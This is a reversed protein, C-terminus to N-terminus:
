LTEDGRPADDELPPEREPTMGALLEDLTFRRKSRTVVLRGDDVPAIEVRSGEALGVQELIAPSMMLAFNDGVKRIYSVLPQGSATPEAAYTQRPPEHLGPRQSRVSASRKKAKGVLGRDSAVPPFDAPLSVHHAQAANRIEHLRWPPITNKNKWSHITAVPWGTAQSMKVLGGFAAIVRQGLPLRNEM